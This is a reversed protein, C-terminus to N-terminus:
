GLRFMRVGSSFFRFGGQAKGSTAPKTTDPCCPNAGLFYNNVSLCFGPVIPVLALCCPSAAVLSVGHVSNGVNLTTFQEADRCRWQHGSAPRKVIQADFGSQSGPHPFISFLQNELPYCSGFYFLGVGLTHNACHAITLMKHQPM